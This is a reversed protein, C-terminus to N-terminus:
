WQSPSPGRSAASRRGQTDVQERDGRIRGRDRDTGVCGKADPMTGFHGYWGAGACNVLVLVPGCARRVEEAVRAPETAVGLDAVVAVARGGDAEIREALERLRDARRGVLGVSLGARALAQASAMGIGSTAGTM